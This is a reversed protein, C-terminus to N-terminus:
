CDGDVCDFPYKLVRQVKVYSRLFILFIGTLLPIIMPMVIINNM